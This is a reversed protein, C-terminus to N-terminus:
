SGGDKTKAFGFYQRDSACNAMSRGQTSENPSNFIQRGGVIGALDKASAQHARVSMTNGVNASVGLSCKCECWTFM